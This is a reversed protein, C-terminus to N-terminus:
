KKAGKKKPQKQMDASAKLNALEDEYKKAYDDKIKQVTEKNEDKLMKIQDKLVDRMTKKQQPTLKNFDNKLKEIKAKMDAKHKEILAKKEERLKDRIYKAAERGKDNLGKTSTKGKLKKHAEYYEHAKQPDYYKSAYRESREGTIEEELDGLLDDIETDPEENLDDLSDLEDPEGTDIEESVGTSGDSDEFAEENKVDGTNPTYFEHTEVNYLVSGLGFDVVDLGEIRNLNEEARLENITKLGIEKAIRYANYRDTINARIIEKVDLEFFYKDKEEELLLSRNLATGFARVVPYIAEKFTREPDDPYIRFINNIEDTLTKKSENLQMEVSSNSAEQFELGDNLVAVNSQNNSYLEKWAAKLIDIEPQALKRTSKLFGKKNGGSKVLGLQYLLTEYATELAKSIEECLGQGWAGNKTNRLLKVFDFSQYEKGYCLIRFSKWIPDPSISFSIEVEDVYHLSTVTNRRRAIYCYGGRGLLYDAVMAKKLQYADLTDGTDCNLLSVRSDKTVEEVSGKKNKFLKVPMCAITSSIYEVAGAVAPLTLAKSRDIPEDRLIARLLVDDVTNEDIIQERKQFHKLINM